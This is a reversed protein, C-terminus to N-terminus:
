KDKICRVFWKRSKLDYDEDFFMDSSYVGRIYAQDGDKETISWAYAKNYGYGSTIINVPLFNFGYLDVNTVSKVSTNWSSSKLYVGAMGNGGIVNSTLEDWENKSPIHWGSPCIGQHPEKIITTAFARDFREDVNMASHWQYIRGRSCDGGDPCESSEVDIVLNEAFWTQDKIKVTPYKHGAYDVSDGYIKKVVDVKQVGDVRGDAVCRVSVGEKKILDFVRVSNKSSSLRIATAKRKDDLSEVSSWFTATYGVDGFMGQNYYGAPYVNFGYTNYGNGSEKWLENSKLFLGQFVNLSDISNLLMSWDNLNPLHWGIPCLGRDKRERDVSSNYYSENYEKPVDMVSHWQYLRGYKECSDLSNNYCWSSDSLYKLNEAFWTQEDITILKYTNEDRNDILYGGSIEPSNRKSSSSKASSSSEYSLSGEELGSSFSELSSSSANATQSSSIDFSVSSYNSSLYVDSSSPIGQHTQEEVTENALTDLMNNSSVNTASIDSSCGSLVLANLMIISILTLGALCRLKPISNKKVTSLMKCLDLLTNLKKM